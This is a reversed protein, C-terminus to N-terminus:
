NWFHCIEISFYGQHYFRHSRLKFKSLALICAHIKKQGHTQNVHSMKFCFSIDDLECVICLNCKITVQCGFSVMTAHDRNAVPTLHVCTHRCQSTGVYMVM